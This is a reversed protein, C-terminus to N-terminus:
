VSLSTFLDSRSRVNRTETSAAGPMSSRSLPATTCALAPATADTGTTTTERSPAVPRLSMRNMTSSPSPALRLTTSLLKKPGTRHVIAPFSGEPLQRDHPQHDAQRQRRHHGPDRQQDDGGAAAAAVRHAVVHLPNRLDLGGVEPGVLVRTREGQARHQTRVLAHQLDNGGGALERALGRQPQHQLVG